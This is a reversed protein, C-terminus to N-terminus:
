PCICDLFKSLKVSQTNIQIIHLLISPLVTTEDALLKPFVSGPAIYPIIDPLGSPALYATSKHSYHRNVCSFPNVDDRKHDFYLHSYM